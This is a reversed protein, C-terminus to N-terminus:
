TKRNFRPQYKNIYFAEKCKRFAEDKDCKELIFVKFNGGGCLALHKSVQLPASSYNKVHQRHLTIRKRITNGTEGIYSGRCTPCQLVYIVNSTNCSMSSRIQVNQGTEIFHYSNGEILIPCTQCRKDKCKSVSHDVSTVNTFKARTLIKKLNPAQRNAPTIKRESLINTMKENNELITTLKIIKNFTNNGPYYTQVLPIINKKTEIEIDNSTREKAKRIGGEILNKPYGQKKLDMKLEELRTQQTETNSVIKLIRMTLNFPLNVKTHKPHCSKFPLYQKSDTPKTYIDTEIKNGNKIIKVDLFPVERDSICSTFQISTHLSNLIHEITKIDAFKLQWLLFCDDLFRKYNKSFYLAQETGLQSEIKKYLDIELYGMVLTAYTPACKTGMATGKVQTYNLNGFEFNNETPILKLSNVVFNLPIRDPLLSPSKNLWFTIATIGLDHEINGYLNKVDFTCLITDVSCVRPLFKLFDATDKLNAEILQIYPKLLIDIFESLKHTPCVPGAVIPRFEINPCKLSIVPSQTEKIANIM